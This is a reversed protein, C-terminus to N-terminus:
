HNTLQKPSQCVKSGVQSAVDKLAQRVADVPGTGEFTIGDPRQSMAITAKSKRNIDRLIEPIPKKLEQRKLLQPHKFNIAETHKGPLAVGRPHAPAAAPRGPLSIPTSAGSNSPSPTNGQGNIGNPGGPSFQPKKAGWTPAPGAARPKPGGGLSPFATESKTDLVPPVPQASASPVGETAKQKGKAKESFSQEASESAPINSPVALGSPPPHLVDDEDPIDEVTAAHPEAHKQRLQEAFSLANNGASPGASM